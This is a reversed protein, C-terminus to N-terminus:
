SPHVCMHTRSHTHVRPASVIGRHSPPARSLWLLFGWFSAQFFPGCGPRGDTHHPSPQTGQHTWCPPSVMPGPRGKAM